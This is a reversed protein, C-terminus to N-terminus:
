TVPSRAPPPTRWQGARPTRTPATTTSSPSPQTWTGSANSEVTSGRFRLQSDLNWTQRQTGATQQRVLDNTYYALTTGPAATTRGFADYTYGSDVLRDASDYAHSTTTAGTTTCAM